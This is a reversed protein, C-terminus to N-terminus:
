RYDKMYSTDTLSFLFKKLQMTEKASLEFSQIISSQLAHKEGGKKYHEFVDELNAKSGDHMYPYTLEVNRLSPVKFKGIDMSDNFIRFRGKDNGYELYLGNNEAVYTTFHPAPHCKTCYLKDSFLRWGALEDKSLAKKNKGSYFQDFRSNQSLLSREFASISRTLVYADFDRNFIKKAALNYEEINKLREILDLMKMDMEVHEQIPVIVQM